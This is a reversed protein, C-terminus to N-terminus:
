CPSLKSIKGGGWNKMNIALFKFMKCSLFFVKELRYQNKGVNTRIPSKYDSMDLFNM